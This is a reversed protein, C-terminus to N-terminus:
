RPSQLGVADSSRSAPSRAPDDPRGSPRADQRVLLVIAPVPFLLLFLNPIWWSLSWDGRLAWFVVAQLGATSTLTLSVLMLPRWALRRRALLAAGCGGRALVLSALGTASAAIDLPLFSYNWDSMVPDDYDKYAYQAPILVLLSATWYLLFAVDTVLMAGKVLRLGTEKPPQAEQAKQSGQAKQAKLTGQAGKPAEADKAARSM